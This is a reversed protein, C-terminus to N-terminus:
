DLFLHMMSSANRPIPIIEKPLLSQSASIFQKGHPRKAEQSDTGGLSIEGLQDPFFIWNERSALSLWCRSLSLSLRMHPFSCSHVFWMNVAFDLHFFFLSFLFFLFFFFFFFNRSSSFIRQRRTYFDCKLQWSLRLSLSLSLHPSLFFSLFFCFFLLTNEVRWRTRDM